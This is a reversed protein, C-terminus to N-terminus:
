SKQVYEVWTKGPQGFEEMYREVEEVRSAIDDVGYERHLQEMIGVRSLGPTKGMVKILFDAFRDLQPREEYDLMVSRM